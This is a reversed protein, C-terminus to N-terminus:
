TESGISMGHGTYFHNHAVHCNPPIVPETVTRTDQAHAAAALSLAALNLKARSSEM